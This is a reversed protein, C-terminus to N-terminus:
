FVILVRDEEVVVRIRGELGELRTMVLLDKVYVLQEKERSNDAEQCADERMEQGFKQRTRTEQQRECVGSFGGIGGRRGEM